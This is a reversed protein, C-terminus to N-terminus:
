LLVVFEDQMAVTCVIIIISWELLTCVYKYGYKNATVYNNWMIVVSSATAHMIVTTAIIINYDKVEDM